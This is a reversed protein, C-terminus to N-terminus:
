FASLVVVLWTPAPDRHLAFFVKEYTTSGLDLQTLLGLHSGSAVYTCSRSSARQPLATEPGIVRDDM